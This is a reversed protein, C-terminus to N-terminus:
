RHILALVLGEAAGGRADRCVCRRKTRAARDSLSLDLSPGVHQRSLGVSQGYSDEDDLAVGALSPSDDFREALHGFRAERHVGHVIDGRRPSV